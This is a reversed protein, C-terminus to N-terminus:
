ETPEVGISIRRYFIGNIEGFPLDGAQQSTGGTPEASVLIHVTNADGPTRCRLEAHYSL